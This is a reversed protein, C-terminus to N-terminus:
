QKADPYYGLGAADRKFVMGKKSGEFTDAAVFGEPIRVPEPPANLKDLDPLTQWVVVAPPTLQACHPNCSCQARVLDPKLVFHALSAGGFLSGLTLSSRLVFRLSDSPMRIAADSSATSVECFSRTQSTVAKTIITKRCVRLFVCLM